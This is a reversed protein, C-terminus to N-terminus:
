RILSLQVYRHPAYAMPLLCNKFEDIRAQQFRHPLLTMQQTRPRKRIQLRAYRKSHWLTWDLNLKKLM